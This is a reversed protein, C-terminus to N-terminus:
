AWNPDGQAPSIWDPPFIIWPYLPFPGPPPPPPPTAGGPCTPAPPEPPPPPPPGEDGTILKWFIVLAKIWQPVRGDPDIVNVPDNGVYEYLNTTAGEFRIPDKNTWRGTQPDYDRVGFRVLGTDRDYLGGAFGFPQCGPATDSLVRGWEDYDRRQVVTGTNANIVLRPSGLHDTIIRFTGSSTVMYEPVNVRTGYVFTAYVQGAGNLWAVPRLQGDYLFGEVLSGNVKKGIRRNRGDVLYDIPRGDPLGAKVLNGFEDYDYTTTAGAVTKSTLAGAATYAYAASGFTLLRDQDDTTGTDTGGSTTRSVRNGNADYGYSAVPQGNASVDALRGAADYDYSWTTTTGQTTETKGTIRGATDRHLTYSYLTAANAKAEFYDLEGFANYTLSTRAVALTTASVRGTAADRVIALAGAGTLLGDPDYAYAASAGGNVTTASVRFDNNYTWAVSGSIAGSWTESTKLMGDYGLTLTEGDPARVSSARGTADYGFSVTGRAISLASLRGFADNTTVITRQDPFLIQQVAQDLDYTYTTSLSGTGSALPPTYTALQNVQTYAMGHAPRGPPILSVLNGASDYGFSLARAGPLVQSQVRGAADYGFSSTRTLPDTISDTYGRRNYTASITRDATTVASMRGAVDYSITSSSVAPYGPPRFEVVRGQADRISVTTRGAPTTATLTRSAVEYTSSYTRGNFTVSAGLSTATQFDAPNSLTASRTESVTLAKGGPTRTVVTAVPSQIGFRPDPLLSSTVTTGDARTTTRGGAGNVLAVEATGDPRTRTYRVDNSKLADVRYTQTRGLATSVAVTYTNGNDTRALSKYGGAPNRDLSLRGKADYSFAHEYGPGRPDTLSQLLGNSATRLAVSEGAPNTVNSLFGNEDLGLSTREGDPSVIATPRGSGDREIRTSRGATDTLSTITGAPGYGYELKGVGTMSDVNAVIRGAADFLEYRSGDPTPILDWSGAWRIRRILHTTTTYGPPAEGLTAHFYLHGDSGVALTRGNVCAGQAAGAEVTPSCQAYPGYVGAVTSLDGLPSVQWIRQPEFVSITGDAAFSMSQPSWFTWGDDTTARVKIALGDPTVRRIAAASTGSAELYYLNGDPGIALSNPGYLKTSYADYAAATINTGTGFGAVGYVRGDPALRWIAGDALAYLTEDRGLAISNISGFKVSTGALGDAATLCTGPNISGIARTGMITSVVGDPGIRRVHQGCSGYDDAFYISGDAGIALPRPWQNFTSSGSGICVGPTAVGEVFSCESPVNPPGYGGTVNYLRGDPALRFLHPPIWNGVGPIEYTEEQFFYISGDPGAAISEVDGIAADRALYGDIPHCRRYQDCSWGGSGLGALTEIVKISTGSAVTGDGKHVMKGPRDYAAQESLTWGGLGLGRADWHAVPVKFRSWAAFTPDESSRSMVTFRGASSGRAMAAFSRTGAAVSMAGVYVPRYVYGIAVEANVTGQWPRGYADKGDWEFERYLNPVPSYTEQLKQGMVTVELTSSRAGPPIVGGTVPILITRSSVNGTQERSSYWLAYPTGTIPIAERLVQGQCEVISGGTCDPKPEPTTPRPPVPPNPSVCAPTGDPNADCGWCWNLDFTSFHTTQMRWLSTGSAYVQALKTREALSIGRSALISDGDALGDGNTDLAAIGSSTDLVKLVVGDQSPQWAGGERDYVGVPVAAGVPFGLFNEVYFPVPVGFEVASAGSMLAEDLSLEVAYTYASTVPLAAPMASPGHPGVTFETARVSMETLQISSGDPMRMSGTIGPPFLLTAQRAGDGDVVASGRAVQTDSAGPQITTVSLDVMTLRVEAVWAFDQWPAVAQRHVPLYGDKAAVVTVAGGGNVAIDYAGDARTYTHGLEPHGLVTIVAASVPAGATDLVVGRLVAVRNTDIAGPAVGYQLRSPGSYLFATADPMSAPASYDIPPAVAAPDLQNVPCGPIFTHSYGTVPDCADATCADGDDLQPPTGVVCVGGAACVEIGNCVNGDSCTSGVPLPTHVVGLVPDCSDATCPNGDDLPPPTGALCTGSGNCTEVGNCPNGDSCSAGATAPTHQVGLVPDCSDITCPNGDDIQLPSGPQCVGSWCTELGNCVNGDSCYTGNAIPTHTIGTRASCADVTCPNGDDLNAPSSVCATGNWTDTTCPNGDDCKSCACPGWTRDALCVQSAATCNTIKCTRTSGTTCIGQSLALVVTLASALV